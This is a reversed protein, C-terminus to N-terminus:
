IIGAYLSGDAAYSLDELFIGFLDPSIKQPKINKSKQSFGTLAFGLIIFIKLIAPRVM